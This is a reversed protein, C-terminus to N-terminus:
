AHSCRGRRGPRGLTHLVFLHLHVTHATSRDRWFYTETQGVDCTISDEAPSLFPHLYRSIEYRLSSCGVSSGDALSLLGGDMSCTATSLAPDSPFSCFAVTGAPSAVPIHMGLESESPKPQEEIRVYKRHVEDPLWSARAIRYWRGQRHVIMWPRQGGLPM